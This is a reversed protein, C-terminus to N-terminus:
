ILINNESLVRSPDHSPIDGRLPRLLCTQKLYLFISNEPNRQRRKDRAESLVFLVDFFDRGREFFYNKLLNIGKYYM